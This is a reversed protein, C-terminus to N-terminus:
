LRRSYISWHLCSAQIGKMKQAQIHDAESARVQLCSGLRLKGKGQAPMDSSVRKREDEKNGGFHTRGVGEGQGKLVNDHFSQTRPKEQLM